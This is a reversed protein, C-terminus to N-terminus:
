GPLCRPTSGLLKLIPSASRPPDLRPAPFLSMAAVVVLLSFKAIATPPVLYLRNFHHHRHITPASPWCLFSHHSGSPLSEPLSAFGPRNFRIRPRGIGIQSANQQPQRVFSHISRHYVRLLLMTLPDIRKSTNLVSVMLACRTHAPHDVHSSCHLTTTPVLVLILHTSEKHVKPTITLDPLGLM